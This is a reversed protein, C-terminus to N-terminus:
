IEYEYIRVNDHFMAPGLRRYILIKCTIIEDNNKSELYNPPSILTPKYMRITSEEHSIAMKTLDFPGGILYAVIQEKM